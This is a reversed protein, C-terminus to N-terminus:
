EPRLLAKFGAQEFHRDATLADTIGRDRMVIFSVCDTLGWEKDPRSRFLDFARAYLRESLPVVIAQPDNALSDILRVAAARYGPRSLSDGIELLVATTTVFRSSSRNLETAIRRARLHYADRSVVLAIAYATDLFLDTM